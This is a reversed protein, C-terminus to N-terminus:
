SVHARLVEPEQDDILLLAEADLLLLQQARQLQADVHNRHRGGRDGPRQLHRERPQAVDGDDLRRGLSAPRHPRIHALVLLLEDLARDHALVLTAPLREEKVVPDLRDGLLGFPQAGQAGAHAEGHGVALHRLPLELGHHDIVQAPARIHQHAGRDDLRADVYRLRVGQDDLVGVGETQGLEVLYTPPDSAATLAGVGVQQVVGGPRQGLLGRLTEGREGVVGLQARAKLDRHAVQLYAAGPVQEAVLLGAM